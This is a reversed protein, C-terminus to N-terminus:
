LYMERSSYEDNCYFGINSEGCVLLGIVKDKFCNAKSCDYVPLVSVTNAFVLGGCAGICSLCLIICYILSCSGPIDSM